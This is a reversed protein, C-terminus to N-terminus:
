DDEEVGSLRWSSGSLDWDYRHCPRGAQAETARADRRHKGTARADRRHKRPVPTGGTSGRAM